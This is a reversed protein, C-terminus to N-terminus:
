NKSKKKTSFISPKLPSIVLAPRLNNQLINVGGLSKLLNNHETIRPKNNSIKSADNVPIQKPLTHQILKKFYQIREKNIM